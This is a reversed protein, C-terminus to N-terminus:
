PAAAMAAPTSTACHRLPVADAFPDAVYALLQERADAPLAV